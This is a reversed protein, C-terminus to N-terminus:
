SFEVVLARCDWKWMPKFGLRRLCFDVECILKGNSEIHERMYVYSRETYHVQGTEAAKMCENVLRNVENFITEDVMDKAFREADKQECVKLMVERCQSARIMVM